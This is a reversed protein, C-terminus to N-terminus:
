WLYAGIINHTHATSDALYSSIDNASANPGPVDGVLMSGVVMFVVFLIGGIPASREIRGTM